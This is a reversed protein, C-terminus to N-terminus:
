YTVISIQEATYTAVFTMIHAPLHQRHSLLVLEFMWPKQSAAEASSALANPM